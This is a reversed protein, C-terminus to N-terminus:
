VSGVLRAGGLLTGELSFAGKQTLGALQAGALLLGSMLLRDQAPLQAGALLLGSM